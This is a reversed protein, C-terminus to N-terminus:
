GCYPVQPHGLTTCVVVEVVGVVEARGVVLVVLVVLVLVVLVVLVVLLVVLVLVVLVVDVEWTGRVLVVLVVTLRLVVEVVEIGIGVPERWTVVFPMHPLLVMHMPLELKPGQQEWNKQHPEETSNQPAPQRLSKPAQRPTGPMGPWGLPLWVVMGPPGVVVLVVLRLLVLVILVVVVESGGVLVLAVVDVVFLVVVLVVVDALGENVRGAPWRLLVSPLHPLLTFQRPDVNPRHQLWNPKQPSPSWNQGYM